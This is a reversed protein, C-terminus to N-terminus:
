TVSPNREKLEEILHSDITKTSERNEVAMMELVYQMDERDGFEEDYFKGDWLVRMERRRYAFLCILGFM